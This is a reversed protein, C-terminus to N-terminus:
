IFGMLKVAQVHSCEGARGEYEGTGKFLDCDCAAGLKYVVHKGTNGAVIYNEGDKRVGGNSVYRVANKFLKRMQTLSQSMAYDRAMQTLREHTLEDLKEIIPLNSAIYGFIEKLAMYNEATVYVLITDSRDKVMEVFDDSYVSSVTGVYMVGSDLYQTIIKKFLNSYLQMQGIEDIYALNGVTPAPLEILFQNFADIEVGYRSVRLTSNSHISAITATKGSSSVAEFGVREGGRRVERTVFGQKNPIGDIFDELLTTKGSRPEGTILIKMVTM